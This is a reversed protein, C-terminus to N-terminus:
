EAFVLFGDFERGGRDAFDFGMPASVVKWVKGGGDLVQRAKSSVRARRQFTCLWRGGEERGDHEEHHNM